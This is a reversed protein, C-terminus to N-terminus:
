LDKLWMGINVIVAMVFMVPISRRIRKFWFLQPTIVNCTIMIWYAWAYPGFARNLFTFQEPQVGSYWAIFFEMTYGYGVMSGTVLIIKNM